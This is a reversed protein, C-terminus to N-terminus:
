NVETDPAQKLQDSQRRYAEYPETLREQSIPQIIEDCTEMNNIRAMSKRTEIPQDHSDEYVNTGIVSQKKTLVDTQRKTKVESIQKQLWNSKLVKFIGGQDDITLFMEWAKEALENTLSEIYWSGGAPDVM